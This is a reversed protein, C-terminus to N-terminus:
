GASHAGDKGTRGQEYNHGDLLWPHLKGLPELATWLSPVPM